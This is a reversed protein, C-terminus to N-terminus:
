TSTFFFFLNDFLRTRQNSTSQAEEWDNQLDIAMISPNATYNSLNSLIRDENASSQVFARLSEKRKKDFDKLMKKQETKDLSGSNDIDYERLIEKAVDEPVDVGNDKMYKKMGESNLKGNKDQYTNGLKNAFVGSKMNKVRSFAFKMGQILPDQDNSILMDGKVESFSEAIIALFMNLLTFFVLVIYLVFLLPGLRENTQQMSDFDFDGM